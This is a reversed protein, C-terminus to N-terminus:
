IYYDENEWKKLKICLRFDWALLSYRGLRGDVEASELLIGKDKGIFKLYLGIPTHVDAPYTKITQYLEIMLSRRFFIILFYLGCGKPPHPRSFM